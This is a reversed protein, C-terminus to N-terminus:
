TRLVLNREKPKPTIFEDVETCPTATVKLKLRRDSYAAKPEIVFVCGGGVM